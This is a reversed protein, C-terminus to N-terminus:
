KSASKKVLDANAQNLMSTLVKKQAENLSYKKIGNTVEKIKGETIYKVMMDYKEAPLDPLSSAPTQIVETKLGETPLKASPTAGGIGHLQISGNGTRPTSASRMGNIHKTLDHIRNGGNDLANGYNDCPLFVMDIDYVFRGVGWMVAARKFADSAASKMAQEFMQDEPDSVVRNGYDSRRFVGDTAHITITACVFQETEEFKVEWSCVEDLANMVDRADIYASCMVKGTKTKSQVRWQYPMPKKLAQM